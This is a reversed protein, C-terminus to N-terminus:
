SLSKEYGEMGQPKQLPNIRRVPSEPQMTKPPMRDPNMPPMDSSEHESIKDHMLTLGRAIIKNQDLLSDLKKDMKETDQVNKSLDVDKEALAKASIEFLDLLKSIQKTLDDFKVSLNVMVKQLSVFNEVLANEIKSDSSKKPQVLKERIITKEKIHTKVPSKKKKVSKKKPMFFLPIQHKYIKPSQM